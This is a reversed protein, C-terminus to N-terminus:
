NTTWIDAITEYGSRVDCLNNGGMTLTKGTTYAVEVLSILAKGAATTGDVVFGTAPLVACSPSGSITGSVYFLFHGSPYLTEIRTITVNAAYGSARAPVSYVSLAGILALM